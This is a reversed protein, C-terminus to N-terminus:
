QPAVEYPKSCEGLTPNYRCRIKFMLNLVTPHYIGAKSLNVRADGLITRYQALLAPDTINMWYKKDVKSTYDDIIAFAKDYNAINAARAKKVVEEPFRDARFLMQFTIQSMILDVIAGGNAMGKYLELPAVVVAPAFTIDVSGNNFMSAFTNTDTPIPNGGVQKILGLSADDGQIYTIKKGALDKVSNWKNSRMLAFVPGVPMIGAVVYGNQNFHKTYKEKSSLVTLLLKMEKNTTLAGVAEVTPTFNNFERVKIGTLAGADCKQGEKLWNAIVSESSETIVTFDVGWDRAELKFDKMIQAVDGAGGVPDFVCITRKLLEAAQAGFSISGIILCLSLQIIVRM